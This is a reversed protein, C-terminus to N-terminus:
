FRELDKAVRVDGSYFRRVKVALREYSDNPDASPVLHTLIVFRVGAKTALEGVAQPSLHEENQHRLWDRQEEPTKAAWTGNKKYVDVLEDVDDIESVLVDAGKALKLVADSPGTDGTFVVSKGPTDFRYSYSKYKGYAPSSPPFNFHTNEAATM